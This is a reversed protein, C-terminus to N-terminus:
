KRNIKIIHDNRYKPVKIKYDKYEKSANDLLILIDKKYENNIEEIAELLIRFYGESEIFSINIIDSGFKEGADLIMKLIKIYQDKM